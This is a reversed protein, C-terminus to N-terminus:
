EPMPYRARRRKPAPDRPAPHQDPRPLLLPDTEGLAMGRPPVRAQSRLEEELPRNSIGVPRRPRRIPVPRPNETPPDPLPDVTPSPASEEPSSDGLHDLVRSIARDLVRHIALQTFLFGMNALSVLTGM